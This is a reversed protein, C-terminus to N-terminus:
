SLWEIVRARKEKKKGEQVQRDGRCGMECEEEAEKMKEERRPGLM